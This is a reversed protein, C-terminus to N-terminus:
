GPVTFCCFVCSRHSALLNYYQNRYTLLLLGDKVVYAPLIILFDANSILRWNPYLYDSAALDKVTGTM